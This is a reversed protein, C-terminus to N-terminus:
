GGLYLAEFAESLSKNWNHDIMFKYVNFPSLDGHFIDNAESISIQTIDSEDDFIEPYCTALILKHDNFKERVKPLIFKFAVHDGAGNELVIFKYKNPVINWEAMIKSFQKEDYNWFEPNRSYARIGGQSEKLHWIIMSNDVVVRYGARKIRYSFITEERHCAPSLNTFYGGSKRGIDVNILFSNYLHDVDIIRKEEHLYWQINMGLYIDEIKNSALIPLNKRIKPDIVLCGVLGISNDKKFHSLLTELVNPEVYDDDDIRWIFPTQAIELMTQHNFVQGKKQGFIVEWKINKAEILSFINQYLGYETLNKQEGDDFIVIKKPLLTQNIISLLMSPLTSFYRDKTSTYATVDWESNYEINVNNKELIEIEEDDSVAGLTIICNYRESLIKSNRKIINDWDKIKHVTKEGRHYIPFQGVAIGINEVPDFGDKLSENPVQVLKYGLNTAKICFDYDEGSGPSFIEDFPGIKNYLERKFMALFFIISEKERKKPIIGAKLPGTVGVLPDDDFPKRLIELWENKKQSLLVVDNNMVIIFNGNSLKIGENIAKTYGLPNPFIKSIFPSKLKQIYENTGDTCGNAVIIIELRNPDLDTYEEISSLCPLTCEKLNNYVPIIVSYEVSM